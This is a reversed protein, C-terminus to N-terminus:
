SLIDYDSANLLVGYRLAMLLHFLLLLLLAM